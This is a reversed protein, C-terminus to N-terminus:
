QMRKFMTVEHGQSTQIVEDMVSRILLSGRSGICDVNIENKLIGTQSSQADIGDDTVVFRVESESFRASLRLRRARFRQDQLCEEALVYLNASESFLLKADLELNGQDIASTLLEYIAVGIRTVPLKSSLQMTVLLDQLYVVLPLISSTENELCFHMEGGILSKLVRGQNLKWRSSSLVNQVTAVLNKDISRKPVYSAAGIKLAQVAMQQNGFGTLLIVPVDSGREIINEVLELGNMVPMQLDTIVLDPSESVILDLGKEGNDTSSLAVDAIGKKLFFEVMRRDIPSDDVILIRTTM